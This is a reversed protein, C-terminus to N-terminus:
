KLIQNYSVLGDKNSEVTLTVSPNCSYLCPSVLCVINICGAEDGGTYIMFLTIFM